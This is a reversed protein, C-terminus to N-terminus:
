KIPSDTNALIKHIKQRYIQMTKPIGIVGYFVPFCLWLMPLLSEGRYALYLFPLFCIIMAVFWLILSWLIGKIYKQKETPLDRWKTEPSLKKLLFAFM